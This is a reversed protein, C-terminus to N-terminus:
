TLRRVFDDTFRDVAAWDTYEYDRSTDTDGGAMRVIQRMLFRIFPSYRTYLLAGGFIATLEPRWRGRALFTELYRRATEPRAGPGGGSLSVSFFAGPRASLAARHRRVWRSLRLPHRGYHISSGVMVADYVGPDLNGPLGDYPHGDVFHGAARFRASIREAIRKTQGERTAYILLIRM